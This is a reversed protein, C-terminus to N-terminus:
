NKEASKKYKETYWKPIYRKFDEYDEFVMCCRVVMGDIEEQGFKEAWRISYLSAVKRFLKGEKCFRM